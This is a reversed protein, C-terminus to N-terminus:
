MLVSRAIEGYAKYVENSGKNIDLEMIQMLQVRRGSENPIVIIPIKYPFYMKRIARIITWLDSQFSPDADFLEFSMMQSSPPVGIVSEWTAKTVENGVYVCITNEYLIVLISINTCISSSVFDVPRLVPLIQYVFPRHSLVQHITRRPTLKPFLLAYRLSHPILLGEKLSNSYIRLINAFSCEGSSVALLMNPLSAEYLFSKMGTQSNISISFCYTQETANIIIQIYNPNKSNYVSKLGNQIYYYGPFVLAPKNYEVIQSQGVINSNTENAFSISNKNFRISSNLIQKMHPINFIQSFPLLFGGSELCVNNCDCKWANTSCLSLTVNLDNPVNFSHICSHLTTNFLVIHVPNNALDENRPLINFLEELIKDLEAKFLTSEPFHPVKKDNPFISFSTPSIESEFLHDQFFKGNKYHCMIFHENSYTLLILPYEFSNISDYFYDTANGVLLFIFKPVSINNPFSVFSDIFNTSKMNEPSCFPCFSSGTPFSTLPLYAGCKPCKSPTSDLRIIKEHFINCLFPFPLEKVSKDGNDIMNKSLPIIPNQSNFYFPKQLTPVAFNQIQCTIGSIKCEISVDNGTDPQDISSFDM